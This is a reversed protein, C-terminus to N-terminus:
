ENPIIPIVFRLSVTLGGYLGLIKSIIYIVYDDKQTIYSCYVPACQNYFLSYSINIKWEEIFLKDAIFQIFTNRKFRNAISSNIASINM